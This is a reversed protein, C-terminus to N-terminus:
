RRSRPCRGRSRRVGLQLPSPYRALGDASRLPIGRIRASTMRRTSSSGHPNVDAHIARAAPGLTRDLVDAMLDPYSVRFPRSRPTLGGAHSCVLGAGFEAAVEALLPEWDGWTDNLLDAGAECAARGGEHRWTDVSIVLDPYATRVAEIFAIVCRIEEAPTVEDGPRPPVSGVDAIDTSEAGM